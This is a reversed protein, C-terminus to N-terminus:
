QFMFIAMMPQRQTRSGMNEHHVPNGLWIGRSCMVKCLTRVAFFVVAPCSPLSCSPFQQEGQSQQLDLLSTACQLLHLPLHNAQAALTLAEELQEPDYTLVRGGQVGDGAGLGALARQVFGPSHKLTEM